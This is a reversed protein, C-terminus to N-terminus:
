RGYDVKLLIGRKEKCKFIERKNSIVGTTDTLYQHHQIYMYLRTYTVTQQPKDDVLAWRIEWCEVDNVFDHFM